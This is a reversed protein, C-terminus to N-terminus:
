SRPRQPEPAPCRRYRHARGRPVGARTLRTAPLMDAFADIREEVSAGGDALRLIAARGEEADGAVMTPVAPERALESNPSRFVARVLEALPDGREAAAFGTKIRDIITIKYDREHRDFWARDALLERCIEIAEGWEAGAGM